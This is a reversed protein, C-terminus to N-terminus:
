SYKKKEVVTKLALPTQLSEGHFMIYRMGVGSDEIKGWFFEKSPIEYVEVKDKDSDDTRDDDSKTFNHFYWNQDQNFVWTSADERIGIRKALKEKGFIGGLYELANHISLLNFPHLESQMSRHDVNYDFNDELGNPTQFRNLWYKYIGM